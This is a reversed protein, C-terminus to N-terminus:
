RPWKARRSAPPIGARAYLELEHLLGYGALSDTGPIIPIGADHLAKLLRLMAPFAERYAARQHRREDRHDRQDQCHEEAAGVPAAGRETYSSMGVASERNWALSCSQARMRAVSFVMVYICANGSDAIPSRSDYLKKLRLAADSPPGDNWNVGLFM